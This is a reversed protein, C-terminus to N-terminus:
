EIVEDAIALLTPPLNLGLTKATKLNVVFQFKISQIVPLDGPKEGKLIRGTYAGMQRYTDSLDPGYSLLGGARPYGSYFSMTPLAFRAAHSLIEDSRALVIVSGGILIAGAQHEVLAAFVPTIETDAAVNFVLLGLGLTRAASQTHMTEAQSLPSAPGLLLAITEATPVAKHLLELRKGAIESFLVVIGTLNGGPRNLSAVLGPEVPDYGAQFIFYDLKHCLERIHSPKRLYARDGTQKAEIGAPTGLQHAAM